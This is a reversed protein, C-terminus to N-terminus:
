KFFSGKDEVQAINMPKGRAVNEFNSMPENGVGVHIMEDTKVM